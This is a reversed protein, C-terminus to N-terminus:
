ALRDHPWYDDTTPHRRYYNLHHALEQFKAVDVTPGDRAERGTWLCVEYKQTDIPGRKRELEAVKKEIAYEKPWNSMGDHYASWRVHARALDAWKEAHTRHVNAEGSPSLQFPGALHGLVFEKLNGATTPEDFDHRWQEKLWRWVREIPSFQPSANPLVLVVGGNDAVLEEIAFRQEMVAPFQLLLEVAETKSKPMDEIGAGRFYELMTTHPKTRAAKTGAAPARAFNMELPNQWSESYTLHTAAGDVILILIRGLGRRNKNWWLLFEEVARLFTGHDEKADDGDRADRAALTSNRRATARTARKTTEKLYGVINGDDDLAIGFDSNWFGSCGFGEGTGTQYQDNFRADEDDVLAWARIDGINQRFPSEDQIWIDYLEPHAWIHELLPSLKKRHHVASPLAARARYYGSKSHLKVYAFGEYVLLHRMDINDMGQAAEPFTKQAHELVHRATIGRHNLVKNEAVWQSLQRLQFPRWKSLFKMTRTRTPIVGAEDLRKQLLHIRARLMLVEGDAPELVAPEAPVSPAAQRARFDYRANKADTSANVLRRKKEQRRTDESWREQPGKEGNIVHHDLHRKPRGPRRRPAEASDATDGVSGLHDHDEERVRQLLRSHLRESERREHAAAARVASDM